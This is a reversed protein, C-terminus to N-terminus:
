PPACVALVEGLGAGFECPEPLARLAERMVRRAAARVADGDRGVRDRGVQDQGVRDQGVQRARFECPWVPVARAGGARPGAIGPLGRMDARRTARRDARGCARPLPALRFEMAAAAAADARGAGPASERAMAKGYATERATEHATEQATERLQGERLRAARRDWRALAAEGGLEALVAERWSADALMARKARVRRNWSRVRALVAELRGLRRVERALGRFGDERGVAEVVRETVDACLARLRRTPLEMLAFPRLRRRSKEFSGIEM